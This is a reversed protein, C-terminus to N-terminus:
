TILSPLVGGGEDAVRQEHGVVAGGAAIEGAAIRAREVAGDVLHQAQGGIRAQVHAVVVLGAAALQQEHGVTASRALLM